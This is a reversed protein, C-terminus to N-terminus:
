DKDGEVINYSAGCGEMIIMSPAQEEPTCPLVEETTMPNSEEEWLELSDPSEIDIPLHVM